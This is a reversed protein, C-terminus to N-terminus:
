ASFLCIIVNWVSVDINIKESYIELMSFSDGDQFKLVFATEKTNMYYWLFPVTFPFFTATFRKARPQNYLPVTSPLNLNQESRTNRKRSM